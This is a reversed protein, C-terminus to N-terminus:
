FLRHAVVAIVVFLVLVSVILSIFAWKMIRQSRRISEETAKNYARYGIISLVLPIIGIIRSHLFVLVSIAIIWIM